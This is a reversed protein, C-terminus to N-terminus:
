EQVGRKEFCEYEAIHVQCQYVNVLINVFNSGEDSKLSNGKKIAVILEAIQILSAHICNVHNEVCEGVMGCVDDNRVM